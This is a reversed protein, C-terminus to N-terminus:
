AQCPSGVEGVGDRLRRFATPVRGARLYVSIQRACEEPSQKSTDVEVDYLQHAHVRAWQFRALGISRDPRAAERRELEALPCHVGVLISRHPALFTACERVWAAEQLVHDVIVNNGATVLAAIAGHFGCVMKGVAETITWPNEGVVYRIPVMDFFADLAVHLYPETVTEQLAKAIATKGSSSAGNLFITTGSAM